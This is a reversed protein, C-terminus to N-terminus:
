KSEMDKVNELTEIKEYMCDFIDKVEFTKKVHNINPSLSVLRRIDTALTKNFCAFLVSGGQLAHWFGIKLLRFTKGTGPLGNLAMRIGKHMEARDQLSKYIKGEIARLRQEDSPIKKPLSEIKLNKDLDDIMKLSPRTPTLKTAAGIPPNHIIYQLREILGEPTFIDDAFIMSSSLKQVEKDDWYEIWECRNIKPWCSTVHIYPLKMRPDLRNKLSYMAQQAQHNPNHTRQRGEIDITKGDFHNIQDIPIAKVEIIFAGIHEHVLLTDIDNVMPLYNIGFWLHLKDDVLNSLKRALDLEGKHTPLNNHIKTM